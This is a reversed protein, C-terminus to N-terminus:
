KAGCGSQGREGALGHCDRGGGDSRCRGPARRAAHHGRVDHERRWSDAHLRARAGRGRLRAFVLSGIVGAAITAVIFGALVSKRRRVLFHGLKEFM